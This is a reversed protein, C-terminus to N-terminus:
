YHVRKKSAQMNIFTFIMILVFLILAAASATGIGDPEGLYKYILGVITGMEYQNNPGMKNGFIGVIATYSKFGGIFGTIALYVIMPSILPVTIRWLTTARTAGDVKAADYYQKNVNQLAGFLILIKFPLGSWIEYVIVVTMMAVTSADGDVWHVHTGLFNNVLGWTGMGNALQAPTGVVNFMAAFVAGISLANTLYPLFLISQYAKQLKKISALAVSIFLALIISLPVSIFTFLLTNRLCVLFFSDTVAEKFNVFGIGDFSGNLRNYNEKFATIVTNVIPYFTFVCLLIFAPLIWLWGKQTKLFKWLAKMNEKFSRGRLRKWWEKVSHGFDVFKEKTNKGFDVFKKKTNRAFNTLENKLNTGIKKFINQKEVSDSADVSLDNFDDATSIQSSEELNTDNLDEAKLKEDSM